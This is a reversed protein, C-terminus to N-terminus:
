YYIAHWTLTPPFHAHLPKVWTITDYILPFFLPRRKCFGTVHYPIVKSSYFTIPSQFQFPYKSHDLIKSKRAGLGQKGKTGNRIGCVGICHKKNRLFTWFFYPRQSCSGFRHPSVGYPKLDLAKVVRGDCSRRWLTIELVAIFSNWAALSGSRLLVAKKEPVSSLPTKVAVDDFWDKQVSTLSVNVIVSVSFRSM